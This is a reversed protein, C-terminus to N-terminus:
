RAAQATRVPYEWWFQPPLGIREAEADFTVQLKITGHEQVLALLETHLKQDGEHRWLHIFRLVGHALAFEELVTRLPIAALGVGEKELSRLLRCIVLAVTPDQRITASQELLVRAFPEDLPSLEGRITALVREAQHREERFAQLYARCGCRGFHNRVGRSPHADQAALALLMHTSLSLLAENGRGSTTQLDM